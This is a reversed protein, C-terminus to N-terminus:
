DRSETSNITKVLELLKAPFTTENLYKTLNETATRLADANKAALANNAKEAEDLWKYEDNIALLMENHQKDLSKPPYITKFEELYERSKEIADSIESFTLQRDEDGYLGNTVSTCAASWSKFTTFLKSRYEEPSLRDSDSIETVNAANSKDRKADRCGSFVAAAVLAAAAIAIIKYRTKM